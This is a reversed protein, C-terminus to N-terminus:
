CNCTSVFIWWPVNKQTEKAFWWKTPLDLNTRVQTVSSWIKVVQQYPLTLTTANICAQLSCDHAYYMCCKSGCVRKQVCAHKDYRWHPGCDLVFSQSFNPSPFMMSKLHAIICFFFFCMNQWLEFGYAWGGLSWCASVSNHSKWFPFLVRSIVTPCAHAHDHDCMCVCVKQVRARLLGGFSCQGVFLPSKTIPDTTALRLHRFSVFQNKSLKTSPPTWDFCELLKTRVRRPRKIKPAQM